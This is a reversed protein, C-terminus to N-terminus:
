LGYVATKMLNRGLERLLFGTGGGLDVIVGPHLHAVAETIKENFAAAVHPDSFYGQHLSDCCPGHIGKEKGIFRNMTEAGAYQIM